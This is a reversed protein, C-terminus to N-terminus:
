KNLFCPTKMNAFFIIINKALYISKFFWRDNDIYNHTNRDDSHSISEDDFNNKKKSKALEDIYNIYDDIDYFDFPTKIREM